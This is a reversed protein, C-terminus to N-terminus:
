RVDKKEVAEGLQQEAEALAARLALKELTLQALAAELEQVRQQQQQAQAREHPRQIVILEQRTAARGYQKLWRTITNVGGIGYRQRLEQGSAGGEYERVVQRKFAESYRKTVQKKM